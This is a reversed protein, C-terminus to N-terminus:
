YENGAAVLAGCGLAFWTNGPAASGTRQVIGNYVSNVPSVGFKVTESGPTLDIWMCLVNQTGSVMRSAMFVGWPFLGSGGSYYTFKSGAPVQVGLADAKICSSGKGTAQLCSEFARKISGFMQMAEAANAVEIQGSIRPLALIALVGLIVIVIIVEILTFGKKM